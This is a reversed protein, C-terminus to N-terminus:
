QGARNEGSGAQVAGEGGAPDEGAGLVGGAADQAM